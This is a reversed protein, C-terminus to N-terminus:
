GYRLIKRGWFIASKVTKEGLNLGMELPKEVEFVASKVLKKKKLKKKHSIPGEELTKKKVLILGM